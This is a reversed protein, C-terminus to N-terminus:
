GGGVPTEAVVKAEVEEKVIGQEMEGAEEDVEVVEDVEEVKVKEVMAALTLESTWVGRGLAEIAEEKEAVTAKAKRLTDEALRIRDADGGAQLDALKTDWPSVNAEAKAKAGKSAVLSASLGKLEGRLEEM